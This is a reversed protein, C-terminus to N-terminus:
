AKSHGQGLDLIRPGGAARYMEGHPSAQSPKVNYSHVQMCSVAAGSDITAMLKEWEGLRREDM